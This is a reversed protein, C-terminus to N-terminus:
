PTNGRGEVSSRVKGPTSLREGRTSGKSSQAPEPLPLLQCTGGERQGPGPKGPTSFREGMTSGKSSQAPESLPLPQCTGGERQGPGPKGCTRGQPRTSLTTGRICMNQRTPTHWSAHRIFAHGARRTHASLQSQHHM